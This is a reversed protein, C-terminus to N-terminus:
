YVPFMSEIAPNQPYPLACESGYACPM